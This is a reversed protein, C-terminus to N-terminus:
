HLSDDDDDDTLMGVIQLQNTYRKQLAILSPIEERCPGCWTAWFNLLVVKGRLGALTVPKGDVDKMQFDPAPDPDRVFRITMEDQALGLLPLLAAAGMGLTCLLLIWRM